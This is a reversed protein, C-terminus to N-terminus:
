GYAIPQQDRACKGGTIEKRGTHSQTETPHSCTYVHSHRITRVRKRSVKEFYLKVSIGIGLVLFIAMCVSFAITAIGETRQENLHGLNSLPDHREDVFKKSKAKFELSDETLLPSM